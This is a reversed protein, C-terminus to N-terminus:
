RGNEQILPFIERLAGAGQITFLRDAAARLAACTLTRTNM